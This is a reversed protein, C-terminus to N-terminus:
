KLCSHLHMHLQKLKHQCQFLCGEFIVTFIGSGYLCVHMVQDLVFKACNEEPDTPSCQLWFYSLETGFRPCETELIGRVAPLDVDHGMNGKLLQKGAWSGESDYTIRGRRAPHKWGSELYALHESVQLRPDPGCLRETTTANTTASSSFLTESTM